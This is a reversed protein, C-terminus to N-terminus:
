LENELISIIQYRSKLIETNPLMSTPHLVDLNFMIKNNQRLLTLYLFM